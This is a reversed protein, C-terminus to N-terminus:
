TLCWGDRRYGKLYCFRYCAWIDKWHPFSIKGDWKLHTFRLQFIFSLWNYGDILDWELGSTKDKQTKNVQVFSFTHVTEVKSELWPAYVLSFVLCKSYLKWDNNKKYSKKKKKCIGFWTILNATMQAHLNLSPKISHIRDLRHPHKQLCFLKCYLMVSLPSLILHASYKEVSSPAM